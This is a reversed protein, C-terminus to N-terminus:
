FGDREASARIRRSFEAVSRRRQKLTPYSSENLAVGFHSHNYWYVKEIANTLRAAPIGLQALTLVAIGDCTTELERLRANDGALRAAEYERFLYEHGVEHAVLAQLEAASLIELTPASVLLVARGHLGTWAQPVDILRIEYVNERGHVHLVRAVAELKARQAPTFVTIAGQRPLTQLVAAKQDPSVPEPRCQTLYARDPLGDPRPHCVDAGCLPAILLPFFLWRSVNPSDM